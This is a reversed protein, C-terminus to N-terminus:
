NWPLSTYNDLYNRKDDFIFLTSKIIEQMYMDHNITKLIDNNCESQYKGGFLCNYYEQLKIHKSQSRSYGKFKNIKRVLGIM